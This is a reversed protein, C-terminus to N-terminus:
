KEIQHPAPPCAPPNSKENDPAQPSVHFFTQPSPANQRPSHSLPTHNPKPPSPPYNLIQSLLVVEACDARCHIAPSNEYTGEPCPYLKLDQRSSRYYGRFKQGLMTARWLLVCLVFYGEYISFGACWGFDALKKMSNIIYMRAQQDGLVALLLKDDHIRAQERWWEENMWLDQDAQYWRPSEWHEHPYECGKRRYKELIRKAKADIASFDYTDLTPIAQPTSNPLPRIGIRASANPNIEEPLKYKRLWSLLDSQVDGGTM